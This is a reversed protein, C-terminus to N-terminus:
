KKLRKKEAQQEPQTIEISKDELESVRDQGNQMSSVWHIKLNIKDKLKLIEMKQSHSLKTNQQTNM